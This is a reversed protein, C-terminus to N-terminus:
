AGPKISEVNFKEDLVAFYSSGGLFAMKGDVIFFPLCSVQYGKGTETVRYIMSITNTTGGGFQQRYAAETSRIAQLVNPSLNTESAFHYDKHNEPIPPLDATFTDAAYGGRVVRFGYNSIRRSPPGGVRSTSKCGGSPEHWSGGRLVRLGDNGEYADECWEWVNGHMDYLGWKNAKKQGVMHAYEEDSRPASEEYKDYWAYDGLASADDGFCFATQSGARCAYEWESNTPLRYRHGATHTGQVNINDRVNLARIFEQADDWSVYGAANDEGEKMYPMSKWPETGMVAKWQGQTVETTQLEYHKGPISVFKM